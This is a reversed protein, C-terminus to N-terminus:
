CFLCLCSDEECDVEYPPPPPPPPPPLPPPPLCCVDPARNNLFLREVMINFITAKYFLLLTFYDM